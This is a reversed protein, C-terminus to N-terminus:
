LDREVGTAMYPVGDIEIVHWQTEDDAIAKLKDLLERMQQSNQAPLLVPLQEPIVPIGALQKLQDLDM